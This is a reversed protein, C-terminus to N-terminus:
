PHGFWSISSRVIVDALQNPPSREDAEALHCAADARWHVRFGLDEIGTSRDLVANASWDDRLRLPLAPELRTPGDDLPRAAVGTDAQRDRRAVFPIAA